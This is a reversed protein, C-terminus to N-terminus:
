RVWLQGFLPAWLPHQQFAGVRKSLLQRSNLTYLFVWPAQDTVERDIAGWAKSAAAPDQLELELASRIRTASLRPQVTLEEFLMVMRDLYWLAVLVRRAARM